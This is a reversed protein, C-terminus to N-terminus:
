QERSRAEMDEAIEKLRPAVSVPLYDYTVSAALYAFGTKRIVIQLRGGRRCLLLSTKYFAGGMKHESLYGYDRVVEGLWLKRELWQFINNM